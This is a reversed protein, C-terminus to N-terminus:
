GGSYIAFSRLRGQKFECVASLSIWGAEAPDDAWAVYSLTRSVGDPEAEDLAPDGLLSIVQEPTMGLVVGKDIKVPVSLPATTLAPDVGPPLVTGETLEVVMVLGDTHWGSMLTVSHWPDTYYRRDVPQDQYGYVAGTGHMAVVDADHMKGVQIGAISLVMSEPSNVIAARTTNAPSDPKDVDAQASPSQGTQACASM